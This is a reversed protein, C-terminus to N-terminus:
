LMGTEDKELIRRASFLAYKNIVPNAAHSSAPTKVCAPSDGTKESKQSLRGYKTCLLWVEADRPLAQIHSHKGRWTMDDLEFGRDCWLFSAM